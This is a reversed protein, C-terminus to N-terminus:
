FPVDPEPVGQPVIQGEGVDATYESPGDKKPTLFEIEKVVVETTYRANGETDEWKRTELRGEIALKDGKSVWKSIIDALAGFFVLRHWETYEVRQGNKKRTEHTALRLNTVNTGSQTNRMEPANGINGILIVKNM